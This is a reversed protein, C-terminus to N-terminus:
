STTRGLCIAPGEPPYTWTQPLNGRITIAIFEDYIRSLNDCDGLIEAAQGQMYWCELHLEEVPTNQATQLATCRSFADQALAFRGQWFYERGLLYWGDAWSPAHDTVTQCYQMATQPDRLTSYLECMRLQAKINGSSFALIKLYAATATDADSIQLAFLAHEFHLVALKNNIAIAQEITIMAERYRGLDSQAIAQARLSDIRYPEDVLAVARQAEILANEYGGVRGYALALAVRAMTHNPNRNLVDQAIQAAPVPQNNAQLAFAHIARIDLNQPFRDFANQTTQLAIERDIERDYDAYSRYILARALLILAEVQAPSAQWVNRSIAIANDLDGKDFARQADNLTAQSNIPLNGSLRAELWRWSTLGVCVVAILLLSFPTCGMKAKRRTRFSLRSRNRQIRM